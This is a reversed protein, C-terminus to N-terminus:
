YKAISNCYEFDPIIPCKSIYLNRLHLQGGKVVNPSSLELEAGQVNYIPVHIHMHKLNFRLVPDINM